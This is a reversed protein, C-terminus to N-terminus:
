FNDHGDPHYPLVQEYHDLAMTFDGRGQTMSRLTNVYGYLGDRHHAARQRPQGDGASLRALQEPRRGRRGYPGAADRGRGEVDARPAASQGEADGRPLLRAGSRWSARNWKMMPAM